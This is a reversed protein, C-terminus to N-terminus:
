RRRMEPQIGVMREVVAQAEDWDLPPEEEEIKASDANGLGWGGAATNPELDPSKLAELFVRERERDALGQGVRPTEDGFVDDEGDEPIKLGSLQKKAVRGRRDRPLGGSLFSPARSPSIPTSTAKADFQPRPSRVLRLLDTIAAEVSTPQPPASTLSVPPPRRCQSSLILLLQQLGPQLVSIPATEKEQRNLISARLQPTYPIIVKDRFSRLAITRVDISSPQVGNLISSLNGKSTQRPSSPRHPKSRHLTSLLPDTRLPLLVGEVYTLVQLFFEWIEVIHAILSEDDTDLKSSLNVMGSAILEAADHELTAIAKSPSSSVVSSIHRKVLTNLEEIPVKLHEGNFLPLVHINVSIWPDNSTSALSVQGMTGPAPLNLSSVSPAQSLNPALGALRHMERSVLKSDYTRGYSAKSPSTHVKSTSTTAMSPTASTLKDTIFARRWHDPTAAREPDVVRPRVSESSTRLSPVFSSGHQM